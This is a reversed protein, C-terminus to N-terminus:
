PITRSEVPYTPTAGTAFNAGDTAADDRIPTGKALSVVDRIVQQEAVYLSDAQSGLGLVRAAHASARVAVAHRVWAPYPAELPVQHGVLMSDVWRSYVELLDDLMPGLPVLMRFNEGTTTLTVAAGGVSLSVELLSESDTVPRAYYVVGHTLPACVIGGEEAQFQIPTDLECGHGEIELRGTSVHVASVARAPAILSGRPVGQRYVDDRTAYSAM